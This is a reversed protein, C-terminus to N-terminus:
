NKNQKFPLLKFTNESSYIPEPQVFKTGLEKIIFPRSSITSDDQTTKNNKNNLPVEQIINTKDENPNLKKEEISEATKNETTKNNQTAKNKTDVLKLDDNRSLEETSIPTTSNELAENKIGISSILAGPKPTNVSTSNYPIGTLPSNETAQVGIGRPNINTTHTNYTTNGLGNLINTTNDVDNNLNNAQNSCENTNCNLSNNSAIEKSTIQNTYTNAGSSLQPNDVNYSENNSGAYNYNVITNDSPTNDIVQTKCIDTNNCPPLTQTQSINNPTSLNNMNNNNLSNSTTNTDVITSNQTPTTNTITSNTNNTASNNLTTNLYTSNNLYSTSYDVGVNRQLISIIADLSDICTDLKAYRTKLVENVRILKANILEQVGETYAVNKINNMHATLTTSNNNLYNITEKIITIYESIALKDDVSLAINGSRLDTCYLMIIGRKQSIRLLIDNLDSASSEILSIDVYNSTSTNTETSLNLNESRNVISNNITSTNIKKCENCLGGLETTTANGTNTSNSSEVLNNTTPNTASTIPTSCNSCNSGISNLNNYTSSSTIGYNTYGGNLNSNTYVNSRYNSDRLNNVGSSTTKNLNYSSGGFYSTNMTLDQIDTSSVSDLYGVSYVLRTMNGDLSNALETNSVECGTCFLVTLTIVIIAGIIKKM